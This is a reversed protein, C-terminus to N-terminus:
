PQREAQLLHDWALWECRRRTLPLCRVRILGMADPRWFWGQREAPVAANMAAWTIARGAGALTDGPRKASIVFSVTDLVSARNAKALDGRARPRFTFATFLPWRWWPGLAIRYHLLSCCRLPVSIRALLGPQSPLSVAPTAFVLVM